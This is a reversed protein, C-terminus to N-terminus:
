KVQKSSQVRVTFPPLKIEEEGESEQITLWVKVAAPLYENDDTSWASEWEPDEDRDEGTDLYEFEIATVTDDLLRERASDSDYDADLFFFNDKMKLGESDRFLSVWKLGAKDILSGERETVSTTIFSIRDSEGVFYYFQEDDITAIYPYVGKLIFSLQATIIRLHQSADQRKTGKEESRIALRMTSVIIVVIISSLLLALVMELLTFGRNNKM